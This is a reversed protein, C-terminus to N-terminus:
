ILAVYNRLCTGNLTCINQPCAVADIVYTKNCKEDVGAIKRKLCDSRVSSNWLCELNKVVLPKRLVFTGM